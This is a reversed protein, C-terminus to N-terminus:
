FSDKYRGKGRIYGGLTLLAIDAHLVLLVLLLLLLLLLLILLLLL